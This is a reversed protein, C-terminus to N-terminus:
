AANLKNKLSSMSSFPCTLEGRAIDSKQASDWDPLVIRKFFSGDISYRHTAPRHTHGHVITEVGKSNFARLIADTNVDMISNTKTQKASESGERLERAIEIRRELSHSLFENQWEASRVKQRFAQYDIDDTCWQDGHSILVKSSSGDLLQVDIIAEESLLSAALGLGRLAQIFGDGLLFDRNGRAIYVAFPSGSNLNFGALADIVRLATQQMPTGHAQLVDDGLWADFLDGLLVLSSIKGRAALLTNEFRSLTDSPGPGLHVDSIFGTQTDLKHM